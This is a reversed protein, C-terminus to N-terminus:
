EATTPSTYTCVCDYLSGEFLQKAIRETKIMAVKLVDCKFSAKFSCTSMLCFCLHFSHSHAQCVTIILCLGLRISQPLKHCARLFAM